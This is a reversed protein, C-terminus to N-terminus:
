RIPEAHPDFVAAGDRRLWEDSEHVAVRALRWRLWTLFDHETACPPIPSDIGLDTTKDPAYADAVTAEIRLTPGEIAWWVSTDM